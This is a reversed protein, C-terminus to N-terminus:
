DKRRVLNVFRQAREQVVQSILRKSFGKRAYYGGRTNWMVYMDYDDPMRGNKEKFYAALYTWHLRAVQVAVDTNQYDSSKSYSKWVPPSLQYRSVEGARGIARDDNGTEIMGLAFLRKADLLAPDDASQVIATTIGSTGSTIAGVSAPFCLGGILVLCGTFAARAKTLPNIYTSNSM